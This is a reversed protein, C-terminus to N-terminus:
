SLPPARLKRHLPSRSYAVARISPENLTERFSDVNFDDTRIVCTVDPSFQKQLVPVHKVIQWLPRTQMSKPLTRGKKTRVTEQDATGSSRVALPVGYGVLLYCLAVVIIGAKKSM